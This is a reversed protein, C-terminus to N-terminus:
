QTKTQYSGHNEPSSREDRGRKMLFRIRHLEQAGSGGFVKFFVAGLPGRSDFEDFVNPNQSLLLDLFFAASIM